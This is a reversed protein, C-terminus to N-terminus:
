DGNDRAESRTLSLISASTMSILLEDGNTKKAIDAASIGEESIMQFVGLQVCIRM